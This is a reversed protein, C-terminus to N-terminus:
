MESITSQYARTIGWFASGVLPIDRESSATKLRRWPRSRILIHLIDGDFRVDTKGLGMIEAM